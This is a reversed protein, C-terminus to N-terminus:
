PGAVTALFAFPQYQRSRFGSVVLHGIIQHHSGLTEACYVLRRFVVDEAVGYCDLGQVRIEQAEGKRPM